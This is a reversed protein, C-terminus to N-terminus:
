RDNPGGSSPVNDETDSVVVKATGPAIYYAPLSGKAMTKDLSKIWEEELHLSHERYDLQNPYEARVQSVWNWTGVISDM